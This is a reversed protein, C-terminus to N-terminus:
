KCDFRDSFVVEMRRCVELLALDDDTRAVFQVGVPLGKPGVGVPLTVAPVGLLTWMSNFVPDGTGAIPPAEGPSAPTMIADFGECFFGFDKRARHLAARGELYEEPSISWGLEFQARTRKGLLDRRAVDFEFVHNRAVEYAMLRAHLDNLTRFWGPLVIEEVVFGANALRAGALELATCQEPAAEYWFPTRCLGIRPNQRLAALRRAAQGQLVNWMLQLDGVSRVIVGLTDLSAGIPKIGDPAFTNFTPKYGVVGCYASPRIISGASQTGFAVPVHFDAVAAASGSSSGGPTHLLNHPNATKNPEFMAFETTVTKGMIIGGARRALNVCAADRQPRHGRYIRSGYETPLDRTDINDKVGVPVGHLPGRSPGADCERADRLVQERDLCVWAGVTPERQNIQALCAEVLEVSSIRKAAVAAAADVASLKNLNRM